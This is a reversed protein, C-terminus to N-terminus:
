EFDEEELDIKVPEVKIPEQECGCECCCQKRHKRKKAIIIAATTVGAVLVATGVVAATSIYIDIEKGEDTETKEMRVLDDKLKKMDRKLMERDLKLKKM